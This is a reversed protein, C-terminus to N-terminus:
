PPATSGRVVMNAPDAVDVTLVREGGVYARSGNTRVDNWWLTDSLHLSDIVRPSTPDSVDLSVLGTYPGAVYAITDVVSVGSSRGGWNGIVSPVRPDGVNVCLFGSSGMAIYAITDQV